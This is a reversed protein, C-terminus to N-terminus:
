FVDRRQNAIINVCVIRNRYIKASTKGLFCSILHHETKGGRRDLAEANGQLHPFGSSLTHHMTCAACDVGAEAASEAKNKRFWAGLLGSSFANIVLDLSDYLLM